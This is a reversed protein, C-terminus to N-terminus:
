AGKMQRVAADVIRQARQDQTEPVPAPYRQPWAGGPVYRAAPATGLSRTQMDFAASAGPHLRPESAVILHGLEDLCEGGVADHRHHRSDARCGRWAPDTPPVEIAAIAYQEELPLSRVSVPEEEAVDPAAAVNAPSAVTPEDKAIPSGAPEERPVSPAAVPPNTAQSLQNQGLDPTHSVPPEPMPDDPGMRSLKETYELLERENVGLDAAIRKLLADAKESMAKGQRIEEARTELNTLENVNTSLAQTAALATRLEGGDELAKDSIARLQANLRRKEALCAAIGVPYGAVDVKVPGAPVHRGQRHRHVASKATGFKRAVDRTSEGSALALDILTLDPHKCIRCRM